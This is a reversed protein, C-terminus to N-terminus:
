DINVAPEEVPPLAVPGQLQNRAEM